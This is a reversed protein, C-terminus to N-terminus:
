EDTVITLAEPEYANKWIVSDSSGCEALVDGWTMAKYADFQKGDKSRLAFVQVGRYSPEEVPVAVIWSDGSKWAVAVDTQVEGLFADSLNEEAFSKLKKSSVEGSFDLKKLAKKYEGYSILTLAQKADKILGTDLDEAARAAIGFLLALALLWVAIRRM